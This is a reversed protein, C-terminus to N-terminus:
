SSDKLYKELNWKTDSDIKEFEFGVSIKKGDVVTRAVKAMLRIIDVKDPAFEILYRDGPNWGDLYESLEVLCGSTSIDHLKGDIFPKLTVKDKIECPLSTTIRKAHRRDREKFIEFMKDILNGATFPVPLPMALNDKLLDELEHEQKETLMIFPIKSDQHTERLQSLLDGAEGGEIRDTSIFCSIKNETDAEILKTAEQMSSVNAITDIKIIERLIGNIYASVSRKNSAIIVTPVPTEQTQDSITTLVPINQDTTVQDPNTQASENALM